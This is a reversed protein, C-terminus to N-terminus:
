LEPINLVQGLRILGPNDGIAERNAEYIVMWKERVASGYYKLAIGSLTDGAAVKHQAMYTPQAAAVEAVPAPTAEVVPVPAVEVMPPSAPVPADSKQGGTAAPRPSAPKSPPTASPPPAFQDMTKKHGVSAAVEDKKKSSPPPAPVKPKALEKDNLEQEKKTQM